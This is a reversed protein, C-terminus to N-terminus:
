NTGNGNGTELPASVPPVYGHPAIAAYHLLQNDKEKIARQLESLTGNTQNQVTDVKANTNLTVFLTALVVAITGIAVIFEQIDFGLVTLIVLAAVIVTFLGSITILIATPIKM